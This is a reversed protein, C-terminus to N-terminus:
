IVPGIATVTVRTSIRMNKMANLCLSTSLICGNASQIYSHTRGRARGRWSADYQCHRDEANRIQTRKRKQLVGPPHSIGM